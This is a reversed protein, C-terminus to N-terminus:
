VTEPTFGEPYLASYETELVIGTMNRYSAASEHVFPFGRELEKWMKRGLGRLDQNVAARLTHSWVMLGIAELNRGRQQLEKVMHDFEIGAMPNVSVYYIPDMLERKLSLSNRWHTAMALELGIEPGDMSELRSVFKSMEEAQINVAWKEIRKNLNGM